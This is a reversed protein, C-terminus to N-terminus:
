RVGLDILYNVLINEINDFEWYPIRLLKINNKDCYINKMEDREQQLALIEEGEIPLYHYEGDYEVLCMLDNNINFLAFDFRLFDIRKLDDFIYQKEFIINNDILFEKVKKEGKSEKCEGCRKGQLFNDFSIKSKNGCSCVYDLKQKCGLYEDSLLLCGNEEFTKKVFEYSYRQSNAMKERGCKKCRNGARFSAFCIKSINGCECIYDLLISNNKYEKSLLTCGNDEFYKKVYEYDFRETGSCKRCRQGKEFNSFTMNTKNGCVCIIELLQGVGKYNNENILLSCEHNEIYNKVYNYDHKQMSKSAKDYRCKKCRGGNKFNDFTIESIEGCSCIFKMKTKANIYEQSLLTCNNDKFYNYVYEYSLKTKSAIRTYECKKCRRGNKFNHFNIQATNGCSCIYDLKQKNDIYTESLLICGNEEFYNKIYEYSHKKM